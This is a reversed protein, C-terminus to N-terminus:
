DAARVNAQDIIVAVEIEVAKRQGIAQFFQQWDRREDAHLVAGARRALGFEQQRAIAFGVVDFVQCEQLLKLIAPVNADLDAGLNVAFRAVLRQWCGLKAVLAERGCEDLSVDLARLSQCMEPWGVSRLRSRLRSQRIRSGM